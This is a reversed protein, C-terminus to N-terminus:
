LMREALASDLDYAGCDSCSHQRVAKASRKSHRVPAAMARHVPRSQGDGVSAADTGNLFVLLRRRRRRRLLAACRSSSVRVAVSSQEEGDLGGAFLEGAGKYV